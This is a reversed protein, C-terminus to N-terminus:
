RNILSVAVDHDSQPAPDLHEVMSAFGARSLARTLERVVADREWPAFTMTTGTRHGNESVSVAIELADEIRVMVAKVTSGAAVSAVLNTRRVGIRVTGRQSTTRTMAKRDEAQDLAPDAYRVRGTAQEREVEHRKWAGGDGNRRSDKWVAKTADPAAAGIDSLKARQRKWCSESRSALVWRDERRLVKTGKANLVERTVRVLVPSAPTADAAVMEEHAGGKLPRRVIADLDVELDEGDLDTFTAFRNFTM